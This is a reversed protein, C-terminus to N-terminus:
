FPSKIEPEPSPPDVEDIPESPEVQGSLPESQQPSAELPNTHTMPELSPTHPPSPQVGIRISTGDCCDSGGSTWLEPNFTVTPSPPRGGKESTTDREIVRVWGNQRCLTLAEVVDEVSEVARGLMRYIDRISPEREGEPRREAWRLIRRAIVTRHDADRTLGTIQAIWYHGVGIARELTACDIRDTHPRGDAMHLIGSLRVVSGRIKSVWEAIDALDGLWDLREEIGQAWDTLREVAAPEYQLVAPMQWTSLRRGLALMTTDYEDSYAEDGMMMRHDRKGKLDAPQSPMFRAPLGRDALGTSGILEALVSPQVTVSTTLLPERIVYETEETGGGGKRDVTLDDGSWAKLYVNVNVKGSKGAYIGQVIDFLEAETSVIALRHHKSLQKVLAEPTADDIILRPREPVEIADAAAAAALFEGVDIAGSAAKEELQKARRTAVKKRREADTISARTQEQMERELQRLPATMVKSAPSKGSGSAMSTVLYLNTPETWTRTVQVKVRGMCLAALVGVALQANLDIPVQLRRAVDICHQAMWDPLMEIPWSPLDVEGVPRPIPWPEEERWEQPEEDPLHGNIMDKVVTLLRADARVLTEENRTRGAKSGLVIPETMM